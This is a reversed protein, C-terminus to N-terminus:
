ICLEAKQDMLTCRIAEVSLSKLITIGSLDISEFSIEPETSIKGENKSDCGLLPSIKSIFEKSIQWPLDNFSTNKETTAALWAFSPIAELFSRRLSDELSESLAFGFAVENVNSIRCVIGSYQIPTQMQFYEVKCNQNSKLFLDTVPNEDKIKKFSLKKTLHESLYFRELLENKAHTRSCHGPGSVALGVSHIDKEVSIIREICEAVSKEFAIRRDEDVGRGEIAIDNWVVKTSFDYLGPSIEGTGKFETIVPRLESKNLYLWKALSTKHAM